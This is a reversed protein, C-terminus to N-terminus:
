LVLGDERNVLSPGKSIKARGLVLVQKSPVCIQHWKQYAVDRPSLVLTWELHDTGPINQAISADGLQAYQRM